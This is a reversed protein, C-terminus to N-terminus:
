PIEKHRVAARRRAPAPPSAPVSPWGGVLPLRSNRPGGPTSATDARSVAPRAAAAGAACDPLPGRAFSPIAPSSWPIRGGASLAPWISVRRGGWLRRGKGEGAWNRGCRSARMSLDPRREAGTQCIGRGWGEERGLYGRRLSRRRRGAVAPPGPRGGHRGPGGKRGCAPKALSKAVAPGAGTAGPTQAARLTGHSRGSSRGRDPIGRRAPNGPLAARCLVM